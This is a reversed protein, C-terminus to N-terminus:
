RRLPLNDTSPEFRCENDLRLVWRYVATDDSDCHPCKWNWADRTILLIDSAVAAAALMKRTEDAGTVDSALVKDVLKDLSQSGGASFVM